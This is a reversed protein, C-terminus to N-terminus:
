NSEKIKMIEEEALETIEIIQELSYNKSLMKKVTEITKQEIGQSFGEEIGTEREAALKFEQHQELQEKTFNKYRVNLEEAVEVFREKDEKSMLDDGMIEAIDSIDSTWLLTGWRVLKDNIDINSKEKNYYMNFCKAIDFNYIIM